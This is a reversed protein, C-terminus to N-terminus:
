VPRWLLPVCAGWGTLVPTLAAGLYQVAFPVAFILFWFFYEDLFAVPHPHLTVEDKM